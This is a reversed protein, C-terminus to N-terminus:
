DKPVWPSDGDVYIPQAKAADSWTDPRELAITLISTASLALDSESVVAVRPKFNKVDVLRDFEVWELASNSQRFTSVYALDQRSMRILHFEQLDGHWASVESAMALSTPIACVPVDLGLAIGQVVSAAIRVGTFSGPGASFAVCDIESRDCKSAQVVTDVMSLLIESHRRSAHHSVELRSQESGFAVSCLDTTTELALVLPM